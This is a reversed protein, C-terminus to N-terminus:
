MIVSGQSVTPIRDLAILNYHAGDYIFTATDGGVIISTAIAQGKHYIPKAGTSNINLTASAPVSNDFTISVIANKTLAFGTLTAEKATNIYATSCTGYGFGMEEPSSCSLDYEVNQVVNGSKVPIVFKTLKGM